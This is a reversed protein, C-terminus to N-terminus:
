AATWWLLRWALGDDSDFKASSGGATTFEVVHRVGEYTYAPTYRYSVADEGTVPHKSPAEIGMAAFAAQASAHSM